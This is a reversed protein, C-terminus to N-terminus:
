KRGEHLSFLLRTIIIQYLFFCLRPQTKKHLFMMSGGALSNLSFPNQM